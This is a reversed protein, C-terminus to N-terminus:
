QEAPIVGMRRGATGSQHVWRAGAVCRRLRRSGGCRLIQRRGSQGPEPQERGPTVGLGYLHTGPAYVDRAALPRTAVAIRLWQLRALERLAQRLEALDQDSKAEDLADVAVALVDHRDQATLADVLEQWSSPTDLDSAASIADILDAVTAGRTHFGLGYSHGTREIALVARALVASKGAGPQATIVLPIEAGADACLWGHVVALAQQRGRFLDGGRATSRQGAARQTFHARANEGTFLWPQPLGDWVTRVATLTVMRDFHGPGSGEVLVGAMLGSEKACVPGGSHGALTGVEDWDLQARDGQVAGSVRSDRWVGRLQKEALPYGFAKTEQPLRKAAWLEAPPRDAPGPNLELVAIDLQEAATGLHVREVQIAEDSPSGFFRILVPGDHQVVHAATLVHCDTVLTGTGSRHGGVYIACSARALADVSM